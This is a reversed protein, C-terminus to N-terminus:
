PRYFPCRLSDHITLEEPSLLRLSWPNIKSEFPDARDDEYFAYEGLEFHCLLDNKIADEKTRPPYILLDDNGSTGSDFLWIEDGLSIAAAIEGPTHSKINAWSCMADVDINNM